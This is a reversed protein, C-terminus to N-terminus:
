FFHNGRNVLCLDVMGFIFISGFQGHLLSFKVGVHSVCFMDQFLNGVRLLFPHILHFILVFVINSFNKAVMVQKLTVLSFSVSQVISKFILNSMHTLILFQALSFKLMHHFSLEDIQVVLEQLASRFLILFLQCVSEFRFLCLKVVSEGCHNVPLVLKDFDGFFPLICFSAEHFDNMLSLLMVRLFPEDAIISLDLLGGWRVFLM